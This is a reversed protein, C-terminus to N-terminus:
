REANSAVQRSTAMDSKTVRGVGGQSERYAAYQGM